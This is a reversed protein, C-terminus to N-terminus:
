GSPSDCTHSYTQGVSDPTYNFPFSDIFCDEAGSISPLILLAKFAATLAMEENM